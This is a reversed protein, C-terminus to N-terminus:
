LDSDDDRKNYYLDVERIVIEGMLSDVIKQFHRSVQEAVDNVAEVVDEGAPVAVNLTCPKTYKFYVDKLQSCVYDAMDESSQTKVMIDRIISELRRWGRENGAPFEIINDQSM